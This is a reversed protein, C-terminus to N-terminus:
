KNTSRPLFEQPSIRQGSKYIQLGRSIQARESLAAVAPILSDPSHRLSLTMLSSPIWKLALNDPNLSTFSAVMVRGIKKDEM